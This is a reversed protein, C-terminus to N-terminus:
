RTLSECFDESDIWQMLNGDNRILSIFSTKTPKTTRSPETRGAKDDHLEAIKRNQM